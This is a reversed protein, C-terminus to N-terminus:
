GSREVKVFYKQGLSRTLEAEMTRYARETDQMYEIQYEMDRVCDIRVCEADDLNWVMNEGLDNSFGQLSFIMTDSPERFQNLSQQIERLVGVVRMTTQPIQYHARCLSILQEIKNYLGVRIDETKRNIRAAIPYPMGDWAVINRSSGTGKLFTGSSATEPLHTPQRNELRPMAPPTVVHSSLGAFPNKNHITRATELADSVSQLYEKTYDGRFGTPM